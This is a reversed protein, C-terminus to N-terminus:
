RCVFCVPPTLPVTTQELEFFDRMWGADEILVSRLLTAWMSSKLPSGFLFSSTPEESFRGRAAKSVAALALSTMLPVEAAALSAPSRIVAEVENTRRCLRRVVEIM